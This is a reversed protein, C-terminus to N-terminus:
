MLFEQYSGQRSWSRQGKDDKPRHVHAAIHLTGHPSGFRRLPLSLGIPLPCILTLIQIYHESMYPSPDFGQVGPSCWFPHYVSRWGDFHYNYTNIWLWIYKNIYIYIIHIYPPINYAINYIYTDTHIQLAIHQLGMDYHLSYIYIM